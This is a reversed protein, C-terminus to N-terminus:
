YIEPISTFAIRTPASSKVNHIGGFYVANTGYKQNINDMAKALSTRKLEDFLSLTHESNPVLNYLTVAVAFPTKDLPYDRWLAQLAELLTLTDSCEILNTKKSWDQVQDLAGWGISIPRSFRVVLNLGATWYEMKRLRKAAKHLLKQAVAYAGDSTRLNPPLVHSHGVSCTTAAVDLTDEGRMWHWFREGQISGWVKSMENKPLKCLQEVTYIANQKLRKYMRPGIGSFDMLQLPFLVEPLEAKRLIVLGDPKQMDSAVKALFRNPALGISCCLYDGVKKYITNKIKKALLIANAEECQSGILKCAMEDISLVASIPVCSEVAEVIRHHFEVYLEHRGELFQIGPCLRRADRVVTGTKVGFKKAEYSAAICVTTEALMPVVAIPKGRLEPRLQQEVSAFYSNLDLFLWNM